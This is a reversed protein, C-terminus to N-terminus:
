EGQTTENSEPMAPEEQIEEKPVRSAEVMSEITPQMSQLLQLDSNAVQTLAQLKEQEEKEGSIMWAIKNGYQTKYANINARLKEECSVKYCEIYQNAQPTMQNLWDDAVSMISGYAEQKLTDLSKGFLAGFIGGLVGGIITGLGPCIFSGIVAGAGAGGLSKMADSGLQSDMAEGFNDISVSVNLDREAVRAASMLSDKRSINQLKKYASAFESHFGEMESSLVDRYPKCLDRLSKKFPERLGDLKGRIVDESMALKLEDRDDAGFILTSMGELFTQQVKTLEEIVTEPKIVVRSFAKSRSKQEKTIFKDIDTLQNKELNDKREVFEQQKKTILDRLLPILSSNLFILMKELIAAAKGKEVVARLSDLVGSFEARYAQVDESTAKGYDERDLVYYASTAYSCAVDGKTASKLRSVIYKLQAKREKPRLKDAQTMVLACRGLVDILNEEVYQSLCASLPVNAPVLILAIDCLEKIARTTVGNHRANESNIGPTDVVAVGSKLLANEIPLSLDVSDVSCAVSEDATYKHVTELLKQSWDLKKGVKIGLAKSGLTETHGDLYNVKLCLETGHRLITSAATTGLCTDEKLFEFGLLANIFTSKGASAEGIVGIYLTPDAKRRRIHILKERIPTWIDKDIGYKRRMQAFYGVSATVDVNGGQVLTGSDIDPMDEEPLEPACKEADAKSKKDRHYVLIEKGFLKKVIVIDANATAINHLLVFLLAALGLPFALILLALVFWGRNATRVRCKLGCKDAVMSLLEVAAKPKKATLKFSKGSRMRGILDDVGKQERESETM